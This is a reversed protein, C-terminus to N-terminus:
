GGCFAPLKKLMDDFLKRATEAPDDSLLGGGGTKEGTVSWLLAATRVDYLSLSMNVKTEIASPFHVRGKEWTSIGGTLLYGADVATAFQEFFVRNLQRPVVVGAASMQEAVTTHDIVRLNPCMAALAAGLSDTAADAISPDAHDMGLLAIPAGQPVPEPRGSVSISPGCAALVPAVAALFLAAKPM